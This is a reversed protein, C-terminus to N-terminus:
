QNLKGMQFCLTLLSDSIHVNEVIVNDFNIAFDYHSFNWFGKIGLDVLTQALSEAGEQPICLIAVKPSNKECFNKLDSINLVDYKAINKGILDINQDFVGVLNFGKDNFNMYSLIAKGLNGAGILIANTQHSIGLIDGIEKHLDNVNYGYGQQGFEGFCHLDQRIQSATIGLMESLKKSSIRPINKQILKGLFRYYRPLRRIVSMSVDNSSKSM